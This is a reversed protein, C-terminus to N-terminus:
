SGACHTMMKVEQHVFSMFHSNWESFNETSWKEILLPNERLYSVWHDFHDNCLHIEGSCLPVKGEDACSEVMCTCTYNLAEKM